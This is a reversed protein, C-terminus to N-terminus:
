EYFKALRELDGYFRNVFLQNDGKLKVIHGIFTKVWPLLEMSDYVQVSFSFMNPNIKTIVGGRAEQKLRTLIHKELKEDIKLLMEVSELRGKKFISTGWANKVASDFSKRFEEANECKGLKKIKCIYDLRTVPFKNANESFGILYRRGTNKSVFIKLPFIEYKSNVATRVSKNIIEISSNDKMAKIIELLVIDDLCNAIYNHRFSINTSSIDLKDIIYSGIVPFLATESFFKIAEGVGETKQLYSNLKTDALSYIYTKNNKRYEVLGLEMYERLKLRLTQVDFNTTETLQDIESSLQNLTLEHGNLLYLILFHLNVDTDTFTKAKFATYFPNCSVSSPDVSICFSKEGKVPRSKVIGSLWSKIRRLENDYSRASLRSKESRSVDGFVFFNRLMDRLNDLNKILEKYDSM